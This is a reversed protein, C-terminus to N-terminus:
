DVPRVPISAGDRPTTTALSLRLHLAAPQDDCTTPVVVAVDATDAAPDLRGSITGASFGLGEVTTAGTLVPDGSFRCNDRYPDISLSLEVLFGSGAARWTATSSIFGLLYGSTLPQACDVPPPLPDCVVCGGCGFAATGMATTAILSRMHALTRERVDRSKSDQTGSM